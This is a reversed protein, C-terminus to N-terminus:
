ILAHCKPKCTETRKFKTKADQEKQVLEFCFIIITQKAIIGLLGVRKLTCVCVSGAEVFSCDVGACRAAVAGVEADLIEFDLCFACSLSFCSVFCREVGRLM